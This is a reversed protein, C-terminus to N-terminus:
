TFYDALEDEDPHHDHEEKNRSRWWEKVAENIVRGKNECKELISAVDNDCRFSMMRQTREGRKAYQKRKKEEEM